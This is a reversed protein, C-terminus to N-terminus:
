RSPGIVYMLAYLYDVQNGGEFACSYSYGECYWTIYTISDLSSGYFNIDTATRTYEGNEDKFLHEDEHKILDTRTGRIAGDGESKIFRASKETGITMAIEIIGDKARIRRSVAVGSPWVTFIPSTSIPFGAIECAESLANCETWRERPLFILLAATLLVILSALAIILARSKKRRRESIHIVEHIAEDATEKPERSGHILESISLKLERSLPELMSIDPMGRGNEWKSVTTRTLNLRDALQQQSLGLETRTEKILNGTKIPDM